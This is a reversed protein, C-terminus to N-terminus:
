RSGACPRRSARLRNLVDSARLGLTSRLSVIVEAAPQPEHGELQVTKLRLVGDGTLVDTWGEASSRGVVRGPVRGTWHRPADAPAAQWVILPHGDIYTFAGPYPETLARM